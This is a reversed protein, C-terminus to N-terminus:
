KGIRITYTQCNNPCCTKVKDGPRIGGVFTGSAGGDDAVINVKVNLEDFISQVQNASTIYSEPSSFINNLSRPVEVEKVECQPEPTPTPTPNSNNGNNNSSNNNSTNNSSSNNNGSNTNNKSTTISTKKSGSSLIISVTTGDAVESGAAISQRLAIDKTKESDQYQFTCSISLNDCKSKIDKKSMGVFNPVSSKKGDSVYVSVTDNNKIIDGKKHSFKIIKGNEVSDSFEHEISYLLNNDKAWEEFKTVSDFNLMKLPGKSITLTITDGESISEDKSISVDIVKGEKISDDYKMKLDLKIKYKSSWKTIEELSMKKLDPVKIKSGRSLTITIKEEIRKITTGKKISQSIVYDKKISDSYDYTFENEIEYKTVFALAYLKSKNTLDIMAIEDNLEENGRSFTFLIEEDRKVNGIKSQSILHDEKVDSEQYEFKINSLENKEIFEIVKELEYDKMDPVLIEKSPNKGESIVIKVKKINSLNTGPKVSQYIINNEKTIDSYEYSENLVINNKSAWKVVEVYGKDTFDPMSKFMSILDTNSSFLILTYLTLFVAGINLFKIKEDNIGKICIILLILFLVLISYSCINIINYDKNLFQIVIISILGIINIGLLGYLFTKKKM